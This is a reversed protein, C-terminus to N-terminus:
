STQDELHSINIMADEFSDGCLERTPSFNICVAPRSKYIRCSNDKQLNICRVGAKKGNEMGPIESSISPAICCAVCMRCKM